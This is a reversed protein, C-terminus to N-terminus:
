QGADADVNPTNSKNGSGVAAVILSMYSLASPQIPPPKYCISSISLITFSLM